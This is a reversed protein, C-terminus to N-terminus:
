ALEPTLHSPSLLTSLVATGQESDHLRQKWEQLTQTGFYMKEMDQSEKSTNEGRNRESCVPQLLQGLPSQFAEECGLHLSKTEVLHHSGQTLSLTGLDFIDLTNDNRNWLQLM